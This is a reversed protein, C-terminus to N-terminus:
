IELDNYKREEILMIKNGSPDAFNVSLGLTSYFPESLNKISMEKLECYELLCDDTNVILTSNSFVKAKILILGIEELNNRKLIWWEEDASIKFNEILIFKLTNTYFNLADQINDIYVSTYKIIKAM